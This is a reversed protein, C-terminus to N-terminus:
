GNETYCRAHYTWLDTSHSHRFNVSLVDSDYESPFSERPLSVRGVCLFDIFSHRHATFSHMM